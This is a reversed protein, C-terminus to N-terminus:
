HINILMPSCLFSYQQSIIKDTFHCLGAGLIGKKSFGLVCGNGWNAVYHYEVGAGPLRLIGSVPFRSIDM